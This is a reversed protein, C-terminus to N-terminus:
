CQHEWRMIATRTISQANPASGGILRLLQFFFYNYDGTVTVQIAQDCGLSSAPLLSVNVRANSYPACSPDGGGPDSLLASPLRKCTETAITAANFTTSASGIRAGERAANSALQGTMLALGFDAPIWIIVLMLAFVLTFEVLAQGRNKPRSLFLQSVRPRHRAAIRTQIKTKM